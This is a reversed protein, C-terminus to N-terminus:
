MIGTQDAREIEDAAMVRDLAIGGLPIQGSGNGVLLDPRIRTRIGIIPKAHPAPRRMEAAM